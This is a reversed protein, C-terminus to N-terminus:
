PIGPRHTHGTKENENKPKDEDDCTSKEDEPNKFVEEDDDPNREKVNKKDIIKKDEM